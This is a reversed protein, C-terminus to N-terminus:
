FYVHTLIKPHFSLFLLKQVPPIHTPWFVSLYDVIPSYGKHFTLNTTQHVVPRVVWNGSRSARRRATNLKLSNAISANLPTPPYSSSGEEIMYNCIRCGQIISCRNASFRLFLCANSNTLGPLDAAPQSFRETNDANVNKKASGLLLACKFDASYEIYRM